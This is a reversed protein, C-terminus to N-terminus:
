ARLEGPSCKQARDKSARAEEARAISDINKELEGPLQPPSSSRSPQRVPSMNSLHLAISLIHGFADNLVSKERMFPCLTDERPLWGPQHEPGRRQAAGTVPVGRGGDACDTVRSGKESAATVRLDSFPQLMKKRKRESTDPRGPLSAAPHNEHTESGEECPYFRPLSSQVHFVLVSIGSVGEGARSSPPM